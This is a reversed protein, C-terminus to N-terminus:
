PASRRSRLGNRNWRRSQYPFPQAALRFREPVDPANPGPQFRVLEDAQLNVLTLGLLVALGVLCRPGGRVIADRASTGLTYRRQRQWM